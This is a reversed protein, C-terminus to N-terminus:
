PCEPLALLNDPHIGDAVTKLYKNGNHKAVIVDVTRGGGKTWFTWEGREVGAIAKDLSLKWAKGNTVGGVNSIRLHPDMRPTKNICQIEVPFSM